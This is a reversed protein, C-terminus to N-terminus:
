IKELQICAAHIVRSLSSDLLDGGTIGDVSVMRQYGVNYCLASIAYFRKFANVLGM